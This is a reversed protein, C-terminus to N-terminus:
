MVFLLSGLSLTSFCLFCRAYFIKSFCPDCSGLIKSLSAKPVAIKVIILNLMMLCFRSMRILAPKLALNKSLSFDSFSLVAKSKSNNSVNTITYDVRGNATQRLSWTSYFFRPFLKILFVICFLNSCWSVLFFYSKISTANLLVECCHLTNMEDTFSEETKRESQYKAKFFM